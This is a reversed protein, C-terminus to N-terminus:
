SGRTRWPRESLHGQFSFQFAGAAHPGLQVMARFTRTRRAPATAHLGDFCAIIQRTDMGPKIVKLAVRRRVPEEQDAVYVVGWGGEGLKERLKYRGVHTGPSEELPSDNRAKGEPSEGRARDEVGEAGTAAQGPLFGGAQEHAELL